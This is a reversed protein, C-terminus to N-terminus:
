IINNILSAFTDYHKYTKRDGHSDIYVIDCVTDEYACTECYGGYETRDTFDVVKVVDLALRERLFGAVGSMMEDKWTM